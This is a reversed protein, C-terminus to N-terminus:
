HEESRGKGWRSPRGSVARERRSAAGTLARKKKHDCCLKGHELRKTLDTEGGPERSYGRELM